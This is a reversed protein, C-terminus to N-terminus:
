VTMQLVLEVTDSKQDEWEMELYLNVSIVQFLADIICTIQFVRYKLQKM